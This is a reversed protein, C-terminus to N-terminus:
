RGHEIRQKLVQKRKLIRELMPKLMEKKSPEEKLYLMAAAFGEEYCAYAEEIEDTTEAAHGNSM